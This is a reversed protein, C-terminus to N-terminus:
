LSDPQITLFPSSVLALQKEPDRRQTNRLLDLLSAIKSAQPPNSQASAGCLRISASITIRIRPNL